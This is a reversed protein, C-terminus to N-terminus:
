KQVSKLRIDVGVKYYPYVKGDNLFWILGTGINPVVANDPLIWMKLESTAFNNQNGIGGYYASGWNLQFLDKPEKVKIRLVKSGNLKFNDNQSAVDVFFNRKGKEKASFDTVVVKLDTDQVATTDKEFMTISTKTGDEYFKQFKWVKNNLEDRELKFDKLTDRISANLKTISLIEVNKLAIESNKAEIVKKLSDIENKSLESSGYEFTKRFHKENNKDKIEQIKQEQVHKVTDKTQFILGWFYFLLFVIISAMVIRSLTLNFKIKKFFNEM